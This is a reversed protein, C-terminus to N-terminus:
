TRAYCQEFLRNASVLDKRQWASEAQVLKQRLEVTAAQRRFAEGSAMEVDGPNTQAALPSVAALLSLLLLLPSAAKIMPLTAHVSIEM